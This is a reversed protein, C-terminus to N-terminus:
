QRAVARRFFRQLPGVLAMVEEISRVVVHAGCECLLWAVEVNPQHNAVALFTRPRRSHRIVFPALQPLETFDDAILLGVATQNDILCSDLAELDDL